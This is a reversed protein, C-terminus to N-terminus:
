IKTIELLVAVIPKRLQEWEKEDEIVKPNNLWDWVKDRISIPLKVIREFAPQNVPRIAIGNMVKRWEVNPSVARILVDLRDEDEDVGLSKTNLESFDNNELSMQALIELIGGELDGFKVTKYGKFYYGLRRLAVDISIETLLEILSDVIEEDGMEVWFRVILRGDPGLTCFVENETIAGSLMLDVDELLM